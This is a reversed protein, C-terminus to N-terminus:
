RTRGQPVQSAFSVLSRGVLALAVCAVVFRSASTLQRITFVVAFGMMGYRADDDTFHEAAQALGGPGSAVEVLTNENAYSHSLLVCFYSDEVLMALM